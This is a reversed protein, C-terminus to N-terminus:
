IPESHELMYALVRRIFAGFRVADDRDLSFRYGRSHNWVSFDFRRYNWEEDVHYSIEWDAGDGFAGFSVRDPRDAAAFRTIVEAVDDLASCEDWVYFCWRRGFETVYIGWDYYVKYVEEWTKPCEEGFGHVHSRKPFFRFGITEDESKKLLFGFNKEM